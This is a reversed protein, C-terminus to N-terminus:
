EPKRFMASIGGALKDKVEEVKEETPPPVFEGGLKMANLHERIGDSIAINKDALLRDAIDAISMADEHINDLLFETM